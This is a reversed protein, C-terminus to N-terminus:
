LSAIKAHNQVDLCILSIAIAFVSDRVLHRRFCAASVVCIIEQETYM